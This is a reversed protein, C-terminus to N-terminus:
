GPHRSRRNRSFDSGSFQTRYFDSVPILDWILLELSEPLRGHTVDNLDAPALYSCVQETVSSGIRTKRSAFTKTLGTVRVRKITLPFGRAVHFWVCKRRGDDSLPKPSLKAGNTFTCTPKESRRRLVPMDKSVGDRGLRTEQNRCIHIIKCLSIQCRDTNRRNIWIKEKGGFQSSFGIRCHDIQKDFPLDSGRRRRSFKVAGNSPLVRQQKSRMSIDIVDCGHGADM